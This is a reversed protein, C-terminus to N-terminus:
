SYDIESDEAFSKTIESSLLLGRIIPSNALFRIEHILHKMLTVDSGSFAFSGSGAQLRLSKLLAVDSGSLAFAGTEAQIARSVLLDASQGSYSFNGPLCHLVTALMTEVLDVPQGEYNWNGSGGTLVLSRMLSVDQGSLQYEGPSTQITLSKLLGAASGALAFGGSSASLVRSALLGAAESDLTYGGPLASLSLSKLLGASQGSFEFSGSLVSLLRSRILGVSQGAFNWNGSGAGLLLGRLLNVSQGAYSYEGASAGIKLSKLLGASQGALNWNGSLCTLVYTGTPTYILFVDQGAFNWNGSSVAILLSKLLAAQQGALNWNGSDASILLSKLLSAQQGALNWNGTNASIAKSALLRSSQGALNWNGSLCELAIVQDTVYPYIKSGIPEILGGMMPDRSSLFRAEILTYPRDRIMVDCLQGDMPYTPSSGNRAGILLPYSCNGTSLKTRGLNSATVDVGDVVIQGVNTTGARYGNVIVHHWNTDTIVSNSSSTGSIASDTGGAVDLRLHDTTDGRFHINFGKETQLSINGLIADIRTLTDLKLWFSIGFTHTNQIFSLYGLPQSITVYDGTGDFVQCSRRLGPSYTWSADGAKTGIASYPDSSFSRSGGPLYGLWAFKLGNALPHNRNIQFRAPRQM